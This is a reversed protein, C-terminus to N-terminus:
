ARKPLSPNHSDADVSPSEVGALNGITERLQLVEKGFGADITGRLFM